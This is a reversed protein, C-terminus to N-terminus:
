GGARGGPRGAMRAKAVVAESRDGSAGAKTLRDRVAAAARHLSSKVTGLACGRAAAIEELRMEEFHRLMFVERQTEPLAAVAEEVRLRFERRAHEEHPQEQAPSAHEPRRPVGDAPADLPEAPRAKRHRILDICHNALIRSAWTFPHSRPRYRSRAVYIRVMTEQVADLADEHNRLYGYALRYLRKQYRGVFEEFAGDRDARVWEM